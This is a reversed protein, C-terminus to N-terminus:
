INGSRQRPSPSAPTAPIFSWATVPRQETLFATPAPTVKFGQKEFMRVSRHMHFAATVLVIRKKRLIDAV